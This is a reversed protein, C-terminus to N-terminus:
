SGAQSALAFAMAALAALVLALGVGFSIWSWLRARRSARLAGEVDGQEMKGSVQVAYVIAPIALPLCCFVLTLLAFVLHTRVEAPWGRQGPVPPLPTGCRACREAAADNATGCSTCYASM